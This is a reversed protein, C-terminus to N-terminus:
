TNHDIKDYIVASYIRDQYLIMRLPKAPLLLSLYGVRKCNFVAPLNYPTIKCGEIVPVGTVRLAHEAKKHVYNLKEDGEAKTAEPAVGGILYRSSEPLAEDFLCPLPMGSDDKGGLRQATRRVLGSLRSAGPKVVYEVAGLPPIVPTGPQHFLIVKRPIHGGGYAKRFAM